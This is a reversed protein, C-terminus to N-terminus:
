PLNSCKNIFKQVKIKTYSKLVKEVRRAEKYNKFRVVAKLDFHKRNRTSLEYGSKHEKM